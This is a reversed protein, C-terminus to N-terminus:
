VKMDVGEPTLTLPIWRPAAALDAAAELRSAAGFARANRPDPRRDFAGGQGTSADRQSFSLADDAVRFGAEQLQRRLEDVRSRLEAAAAPNDFALRAALQGDADIDLSVDVQGLGDPTLAMEFRTSRGELKRVIQAAIQATTEISARSTTSLSLNAAEIARAEVAASQASSLLSTPTDAPEPVTAPGAVAEALAAPVSPATATTSPGPGPAPSTRADTAATGPSADSGKGAGPSGQRAVDARDSLDRLRRAEANTPAPSVPLADVGADTAEPDATAASSGDGAPEDAVPLSPPLVAAATQLPTPVPTATAARAQTVAGAAAAAPAAAAVTEAAIRAGAEGATEAAPATATLSSKDSDPQGAATTAKDTRADTPSLGTGPGDTEQTDPLGASGTLADASLSTGTASDAMRDGPAATMGDAPAPLAPDAPGQPPAAPNLLDADVTTPAPHAIVPAPVPLAIAPDPQVVSGTAAARDEPTPERADEKGAPVRERSATNRDGTGGVDALVRSFGVAEGAQNDADRRGAASEAFPTM